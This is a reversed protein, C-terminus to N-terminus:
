EFEKEKGSKRSLKVKIKIKVDGAISGIMSSRKVSKQQNNATQKYSINEKRESGCENVATGYIFLQCKILMLLLLLVMSLFSMVM